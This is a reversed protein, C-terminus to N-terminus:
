EHTVVVSFGAKPRAAGCPRPRCWARVGHNQIVYALRDPFAITVRQLLQQVLEMSIICFDGVLFVCTAELSQASLNTVVGCYVQSQVVAPFVKTLSIHSNSLNWFARQQGYVEAGDLPILRPYHIGQVVANRQAFQHQGIPQVDIACEPCPVGSRPTELHDIMAAFWAIVRRAFFPFAPLGAQYSEEKTAVCDDWQLSFNSEGVM